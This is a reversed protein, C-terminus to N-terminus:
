AVEPLNSKNNQILKQLMNLQSYLTKLFITKILALIQHMSPCTDYLVYWTSVSGSVLYVIKLLVM